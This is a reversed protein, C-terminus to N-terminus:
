DKESKEEKEKYVYRNKEYYEKNELVSKAEHEHKFYHKFQKYLAKVQDFAENEDIKGGQELDCIISMQINFAKFPDDYKEFKYKSM